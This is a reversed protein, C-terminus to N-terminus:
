AHLHGLALLGYYTYECDVVDDAWHGYFGGENTWLSDVFDLCKERIPDISRDLCALAHLGTATSLLDPGPTNPSACIGGQSHVRAFLWEPVCDSVPFGLSTLTVVAAATSNTGAEPIGRDNAWAGDKTELLKLSQVVGLPNPLETQLDGYASLALFAGYASGTPLGPFINFGGDKSRFQNLAQLLSEREEATFSTRSAQHLAARSNIWCCFHILDLKAPNYGALHKLTPESPLEADLALLGALGFGTYYLDSEGSRNAFGGEPTLHQKYFAAVLESSDGLVKQSLRAVQLMQLRVSM